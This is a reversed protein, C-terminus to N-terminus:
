VRERCSARGIQFGRAQADKLTFATGIAWVNSSTFAVSNSPTLECSLSRAICTHLHSLHSHDYNSHSCYYQTPTSRSSHHSSATNYRSFPQNGGSSSSSTSPQPSGPSQVDTPQIKVTSIYGELIPAKCGACFQLEAAPCQSVFQPENANRITYFVLRPGHVQFVHFVFVNCKVSFCVSNLSKM